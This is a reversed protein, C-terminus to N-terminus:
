FPLNPPIKQPAAPQRHSAQRQGINEAGLGAGADGPGFFRYDHDEQRAPRGMLVHHQSVAGETEVNWVVQMKSLWAAPLLALKLWLPRWSACYGDLLAFAGHNTSICPIGARHVGLLPCRNLMRNGWGYNGGFHFHVLDVHQARLQHILNRTAEQSAAEPRWPIHAEILSSFESRNITESEDNSVLVIKCHPSLQRILTAVLVETGGFSQISYETCQAIVM